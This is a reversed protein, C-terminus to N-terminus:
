HLSFYNLGMTHIFLCYPDQDALKQDPNVNNEISLFSNSFILGVTQKNPQICHIIQPWGPAYETSFLANSPIYVPSRSLNFISIRLVGHM